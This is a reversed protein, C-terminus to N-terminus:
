HAAAYARHIWSGLYNLAGGNVWPIKPYNAAPFTVEGPDANGHQRNINHHDGRGHALGSGDEFQVSWCSAPLLVAREVGPLKM